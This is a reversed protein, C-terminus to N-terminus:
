AGVPVLRALGAHDDHELLVEADLCTRDRGLTAVALTRDGRRYALAADGSAPDGDIDIRDWASLFGVVNVTTDFHASWFFPIADFREAGGLLNRAAVQGQRQALVWHEIRQREGTHPDPWRAIDGAAWVGPASTQLFADVLVGNDVSLGAREALGTAPRVGVGLIVLDASLQTGDSLRVSGGEIAEPKCGLHFVVGNREHTARIAAGLAPGLIRALPVPEPAVVHVDLGRARLSAAVELGIFSAGVVVARRAGAAAAVIAKSDAVTRLLFAGEAGPLPLRVPDAGTALLCAGFPLASGDSLLVRRQSLDLEVAEVGSRLAIDNDRYFAEDRLPLWAEPAAGALYDKSLNPRDVPLGAERGVLTIPGDFGTARMAEVASAGAAGAGIVVVPGPGARGSPRPATPAPGVVRVNGEVVEVVHRDLARLAPARVAEGTRLDFCAHHWPCRITDGVRRGEDLPAGYHTCAAGVAHFAGDVRSLLIPEGHAHGRLVGDEPVQDVPIGVALDPGTLPLPESM